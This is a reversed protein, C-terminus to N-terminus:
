FFFWNNKIKLQTIADEIEEFTSFRGKMGEILSEEIEFQDLKSPVTKFFYKNSMKKLIPFLKKPVENGEPLPHTLQLNTFISPNPHVLPLKGEFLRWILIGLAFYDTRQDVLKLQNLLLEPAAYGLPFLMKEQGLFPYNLALGFDILAVTIKGEVERVIINSPKIDCHAIKQNELEKFLPKLAIILEKLKLVRNKRKIGNWYNDLTLGDFFSKVVIIENESYHTLFTSPLGPFNFDFNAERQMRAILHANSSSIRCSKLVAKEGTLKDEVLFVKGFKRKAQTGLPHLIKYKDSIEEM